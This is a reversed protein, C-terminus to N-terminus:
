GDEQRRGDAEDTRGADKKRKEKEEKKQRARNYAAMAEFPGVAVSVAILVIWYWAM